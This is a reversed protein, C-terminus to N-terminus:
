ERMEIENANQHTDNCKTESKVRKEPQNRFNIMKENINRDSKEDNYSNEDKRDTEDSNQDDAIVSFKHLFHVNEAYFEIFNFFFSHISKKRSFTLKIKNFKQSNIM